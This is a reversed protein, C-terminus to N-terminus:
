PVDMIWSVGRAAFWTLVMRASAPVDAGLNRRKMSVPPQEPSCYPIDNSSTFDSSAEKSLSPTAITTSGLLSVQGDKLILSGGAKYPFMVTALGTIALPYVIGFLVATVLTFLISTKWVSHGNSVMDPKLGDHVAHGSADKELIATSATSHM